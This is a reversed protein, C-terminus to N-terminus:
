GRRALIGYMTSGPMLRRVQRRPLGARELSSLTDELDPIPWCGLMSCTAANLNAAFVDRGKGQFNCIMALCGNPALLEALRRYVVDLRQPSFYYAINAFIILGFGQGKDLERSLNPDLIDGEVVRLRSDLGWAQLNNRAQTAVRPDKELGVGTIRSEAEACVRLSNGSGCGVDLVHLAGQGRVQEHLLSALYPEAITSFRAVVPGIWDLYDGKPADAMREPLHRYVSNYYTVFGEALAALGDGDDAQMARLVRGRVRYRGDSVALEGLAQGVDLLADLLELRQVGLKSTLEERTAPVILAKALGSRVCADLFHLRVFAKADQFLRYFAMKHRTKLATRVSRFAM